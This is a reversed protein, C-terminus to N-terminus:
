QGARRTVSELLIAGLGAFLIGGSASGGLGLRPLGLAALVLWLVILAALRGDDVLLGIVENLVTRIWRM